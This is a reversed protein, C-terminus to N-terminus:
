IASGNEYNLALKRATEGVLLGSHGNSCVNRLNCVILGGKALRPAIDFAYQNTEKSRMSTLYPSAIATEIDANFSIVAVADFPIVSIKAYVLNTKGIECV